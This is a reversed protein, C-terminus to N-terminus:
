KRAKGGRSFDISDWTKQAHDLEERDLEVGNAAKVGDARAAEPGKEADRRARAAQSVRWTLGEDVLGEIDESAERLELEAGWHAALKALEMAVCKEACDGRWIVM